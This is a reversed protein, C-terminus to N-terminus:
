PWKRYSPSPWRSMQHLLQNHGLDRLMLTLASGLEPWGKEELKVQEGGRCGGEGAVSQRESFWAYWMMENRWGEEHQKKERGRIKWRLIRSVQWPSALKLVLEMVFGVEIGGLKTSASKLERSSGCCKQNSAQKLAMQLSFHQQNTTYM